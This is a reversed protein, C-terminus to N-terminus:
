PIVALYVDKSDNFAQRVLHEQISCGDSIPEKNGSPDIYYGDSTYTPTHGHMFFGSRGFMVNNEDPILPITLPGMKPDNIATGKKYLGCPLPGVGEVNQMTPNNFGAGHGAWGTGILKLTNDYLQGTSQKLIWM